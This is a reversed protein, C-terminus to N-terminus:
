RGLQQERFFHVSLNRFPYPMNLEWPTKFSREHLFQLCLYTALCVCLLDTNLFKGTFFTSHLYQSVRADCCFCLHTSPGHSIHLCATLLNLLVTIIFIAAFYYLLLYLVRSVTFSQLHNFNLFHIAKSEVMNLLAIHTSGRLVYSIYEVSPHVLGKYLPLM